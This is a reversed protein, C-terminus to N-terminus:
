PGPDCHTDRVAWRSGDCYASTWGGPNCFGRWGYACSMVQTCSWGSSPLAAPCAPASRITCYGTGFEGCLTWGDRVETPADVTIGDIADDAHATDAESDSPVLTGEDADPGADGRADPGARADADATGDAPGDAADAAREDAGVDAVEDHSGYCGLLAVVTAAAAARSRTRMTDRPM